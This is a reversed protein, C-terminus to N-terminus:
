KEHLFANGWQLFNLYGTNSHVLCIKVATDSIGGIYRYLLHSNCQSQAQRCYHIFMIMAKCKGTAIDYLWLGWSIVLVSTYVQVSLWRGSRLFYAYMLKATVSCLMSCCRVYLNKHKFNITQRYTERRRPPPHGPSFVTDASTKLNLPNKFAGALSSADNRRLRSRRGLM